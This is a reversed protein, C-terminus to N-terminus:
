SEAVQGKFLSNIKFDSISCSILKICFKSRFRYSNTSYGRLYCHKKSHKNIELNEQSNQLPSSDPIPVFLGLLLWCQQVGQASWCPLNIERRRHCAPFESGCSHIFFSPPKLINDLWYRSLLRKLPNFM